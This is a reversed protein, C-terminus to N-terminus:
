WGVRRRSFWGGIGSQVGCIPHIGIDEQEHLEPVIRSLASYIPYAHDEPISGGQSFLLFSVDLKM